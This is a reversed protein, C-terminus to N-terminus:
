FHCGIHHRNNLIAALIAFFLFRRIQSKPFTPDRLEADEKLALPVVQNLMDGESYGVARQYKELEMIFEYPTKGEHSGAYTPIKIDSTKLHHTRIHSGNNNGHHLNNSALNNAPRSSSSAQVGSVQDGDPFPCPRSRRLFNVNSHLPVSNELGVSSVLVPNGPTRPPTWTHSPANSVAPRFASNNQGLFQVSPANNGGQVQGISRELRTELKEVREILPVILNSLQDVIQDTPDHNVPPPIVRIGSTGAVNGHSIRPPVIEEIESGNNVGPAVNPVFPSNADPLANEVLNSTAPRQVQVVRSRLVRPIVASNSRRYRRALRRGM